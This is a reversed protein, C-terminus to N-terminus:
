LLELGPGKLFYTRLTKIDSLPLVRRKRYTNGRFFEKRYIPPSLLDKRRFLVNRMTKPNAPILAAAVDLDYLPEVHAIANESLKTITAELKQM